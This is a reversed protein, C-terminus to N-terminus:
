ALRGRGNGRVTPLPGTWVVDDITADDGFLYDLGADVDIIATLGNTNIGFYYLFTSDQRFPYFNDRYNMGVEDNGPMLILGSVVKHRLNNRRQEYVSKEFLRFTFMYILYLYHIEFVTCKDYLIM